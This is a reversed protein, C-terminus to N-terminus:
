ATKRFTRFLRAFSIYIMGIGLLVMALGFLFFLVFFLWVGAELVWGFSGVDYPNSYKLRVTVGPEMMVILGAFIPVQAIIATVIVVVIQWLIRSFSVRTKPQEERLSDAERKVNAPLKAQAPNAICSASAVSRGVVQSRQLNPDRPPIARTAARRRRIRQVLYIPLLIILALLGLGFVIVAIKM